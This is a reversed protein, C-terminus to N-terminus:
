QGTLFAHVCLHAFLFRFFIGPEAIHKVCNIGSLVPEFAYSNLSILGIKARASLSCQAVEGRPNIPNILIEKKPFARCGRECKLHPVHGEYEPSVCTLSTKSIRYLENVSWPFDM